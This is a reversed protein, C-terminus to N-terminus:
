AKYRGLLEHARAIRKSLDNIQPQLEAKMRDRKDKLSEVDVTIDKKNGGLERKGVAKIDHEANDLSRKLRALREIMGVVSSEDQMVELLEKIDTKVKEFREEAAQVAPQVEIVEPKVIVQGDRVRIYRLLKTTEQDM